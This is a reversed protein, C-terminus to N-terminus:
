QIWRVRGGVYRRGLAGGLLGDLESQSRDATRPQGYFGSPPFRERLHDRDCRSVSHNPISSPQWGIGAALEHPNRSRPVAFSPDSAVLASTVTTTRATARAPQLM